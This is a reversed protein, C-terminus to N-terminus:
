EIPGESAPVLEETGSQIPAATPTQTNVFDDGIIILIDVDQSPRKEGEPLRANEGDLAASIKLVQEDLNGKLDIVKTLVYNSKNANNRTVVNFQYLPVKAKLSAEFPTTLAPTTTGNYLAIRLDKKASNAGLVGTNGDTGAGPQSGNAATQAGPTTTNVNIPSVNIIKNSSPRYLIGKKAAVYVLVKDGVAAKSFFPQSLLQAPDTVTAVTPKEGGPLEMIKSVKEVLAAVEADTANQGSTLKSELSRYQYFFFGSVILAVLVVLGISVPVVYKQEFYKQEFKFESLKKM